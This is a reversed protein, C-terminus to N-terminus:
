REGYGAAAAGPRLTLRRQPLPKGELLNLRALVLAYDQMLRTHEDRLREFKDPSIPPTAFVLEYYRDAEERLVGLVWRYADAATREVLATGVLQELRREFEV